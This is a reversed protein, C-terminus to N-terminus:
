IVDNIVAKYEPNLFSRITTKLDKSSTLIHRALLGKAAKANHGGVRGGSKAVLDVRVHNPIQDWDIASRHENPLLDVVIHKKALVGLSSTLTPRWFGALVGIGELKASMKLKYNPIPEDARALGLLGSVVYIQKAVSRRTAAPLSQLDLHKWVVGTYREYAALTLSGVTKAGNQKQHALAVKRRTSGLTNSFSGSEPSWKSKETGGTAKGESPPLLILLPLQAM